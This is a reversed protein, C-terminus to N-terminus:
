GNDTINKYSFRDARITLIAEAGTINHEESIIPALNVDSMSFDYKSNQQLYDQLQGLIYLNEQVSEIYAIKDGVLTKDVIMLNIDVSYVSEGEDRGITARDVAIHLSRYKFTHSKYDEEDAFILVENIMSHTEGFEQIAKVINKLDTM